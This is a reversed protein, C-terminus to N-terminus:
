FLALSASFIFETPSERRDGRRFIMGYEFEWSNQFSQRLGVTTRTWRSRRADYNGGAFVEYNENLWRTMDVSYFEYASQMYDNGFTLSWFYQDRFTLSNNWEDLEGDNPDIRQFSRFELWDAPHLSYAFQITSLRNERRAPDDQFHWDQAIELSALKRSGYEPDRTLLEQDIGIRVLHTRAMDDLDTREALRYDPLRNSFPRRNVKPLFDDGQEAKPIWHYSLYPSVQHRLGNVKWIDNEVAFDGTAVGRAEMAVEGLLRTYNGSRQNTREYHTLRGGVSPTLSLWPQPRFSKELGLFTDFRDSRQTETLTTSPFDPFDVPRARLRAVQAHSRLLWGDMVWPRLALRVEPLSEPVTQFNNPRVRSFLHGQWWDDTYTASFFTDPNEAERFLDRRFDRTVESDSRYNVQMNLVLNERNDMLHVFDVHGRDRRIAVGRRDEGPSGRDSIWGTTLNGEVFWEDEPLSQYQLGPGVMVGRSTYLHLDLGPAVRENMPFFVSFEMFWGLVDTQGSRIQVTPTPGLDSLYLLPSYFLPLRGIGATLHRGSLSNDPGVEVQRVRLFPTFGLPETPYFTLSPTRMVSGERTVSDMRAFYPHAGLRVDEASFLNAGYDFSAESAVFRIGEFQAVVPNEALVMERKQSLEIGGAQLWSDGYFVTTGAGGRLTQGGDEIELPLPSEIAVEPESGGLALSSAVGLAMVGPFLGASLVKPANTRM